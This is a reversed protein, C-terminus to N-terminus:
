KVKQFDEEKVLGDKYEELFSSFDDKYDTKLEEGNITVNKMEYRRKLDEVYKQIPLDKKYVTFEYDWYEEESGFSKIVAEADEKNNATNIIEKLEELYARVEDDSVTYGNRIAEQYLAERKMSYKIAEAEAEKREMGSLVYFDTAQKIDNEMIVTSKGKFCIKDGTEEENESYGRLIKGWEAMLESNKGQALVSVGFAALISFVCFFSLIVKTKKKM